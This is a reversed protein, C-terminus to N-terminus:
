DEIIHPFLNTSLNTRQTFKVSKDVQIELYVVTTAKLENLNASQLSFTFDNKPGQLVCM